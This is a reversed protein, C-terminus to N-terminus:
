SCARAHFSTWWFGIIIINICCLMMITTIRTEQVYGATEKDFTDYFPTYMQMDRLDSIEGADDTVVTRIYLDSSLESRVCPFYGLM